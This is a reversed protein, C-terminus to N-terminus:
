LGAAQAHQPKAQGRYSNWSVLGSRWLKIEFGIGIAGAVFGAIINGHVYRGVSRAVCDLDGSEAGAPLHDPASLIQRSGLLGHGIVAAHDMQATWVKNTGPATIVVGGFYRPQWNDSEEPM